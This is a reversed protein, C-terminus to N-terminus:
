AFQRNSAHWRHLAFLAGTAHAGWHWWFHERWVYSASATHGAQYLWLGAKLERWIDALDDALDGIGPVEDPVNEPNSCQMYFNFPMAGFRRFIQQWVEPTIEPADEEGFEYPLELALQYLQSLIKLAFIAEEAPAQLQAESCEAWRCYQEATEAFQSLSNM